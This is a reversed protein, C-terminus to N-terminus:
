KPGGWSRLEPLIHRAFLAMSHKVSSLPAHEFM